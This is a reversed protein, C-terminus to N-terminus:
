WFAGGGAVKDSRNQFDVHPLAVVPVVFAVFAVAKKQVFSCSVM